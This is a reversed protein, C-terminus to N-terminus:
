NYMISASSYCRRTEFERRSKIVAYIVLPIELRCTGYTALEYHDISGILREPCHTGEMKM